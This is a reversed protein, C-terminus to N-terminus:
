PIEEGGELCLPTALLFLILRQVETDGWNDEFLGALNFGLLVLIVGVHLEARAGRPGGERRYARLAAALGAAMLWLYAALSLLGREATLQLFANHLHPVTFRPATPHRYIPYRRKVMGPGIGVLPRESVMYLGADIMCLRDYNSEDRLEAISRIREWSTPVLLVVVLAAAAYVVFFRRARVLVYGTLTIAVAVWPGRTLTLLLTTNIAALALYSWPKKWGDGSVVRAVLLLDGILLIGAFTQYHSFPGVIRKHLEGYDTLFYQYLGHCASATVMLIVWDFIRKVDREGRVLVLGLPLTLLSFGERLQSSSAAPDASFLVSVALLIFYTGTPALLVAGQRWLGRLHERRRAAPRRVAPRRVAPRRVAWLIMLGLFANSAAIGVVTVLHGLYFYYPARGRPDAALDQPLFRRLDIPM